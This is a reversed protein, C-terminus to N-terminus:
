LEALDKESLYSVPMDAAKGSDGTADSLFLFSFYAM